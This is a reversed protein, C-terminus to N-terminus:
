IVIGYFQLDGDAQRLYYERFMRPELVSGFMENSINAYYGNTGPSDAPHHHYTGHEARGDGACTILLLGGPPLARYMESLSQQWHRDHELMETSVITHFIGLSPLLKHVPGVHDVNPGPVIDVGVYRSAHFLYRNNGNVHLSGADLVDVNTFLHPFKERVMTCFDQQAKHSM